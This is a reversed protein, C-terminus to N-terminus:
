IYKSFLTYVYIFRELAHKNANLEQYTLHDILQIIRTYSSLLYISLLFLLIDVIYAKYANVIKGESFTSIKRKGSAM